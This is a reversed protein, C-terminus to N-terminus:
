HGTATLRLELLVTDLIRTIVPAEEFDITLYLIHIDVTPGASFNSKLSLKWKGPAFCDVYLDLYGSSALTKLYDTDEFSAITQEEDYLKGTFTVGASIDIPSGNEDTFVYRIRKIEGWLASFEQGIFPM